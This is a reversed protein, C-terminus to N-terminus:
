TPEIKFRRNLKRKNLQLNNRHNKSGPPKPPREAYKKANWRNHIEELKKKTYLPFDGHMMWAFYSPEIKFIDEVPKGKHKGFNFVEEGNENFVM